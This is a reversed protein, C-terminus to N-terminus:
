AVLRRSAPLPSAQELQIAVRPMETATQRMSWSASLVAEQLTRPRSRLLRRTLSVIRHRM